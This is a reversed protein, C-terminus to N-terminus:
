KWTNRARWYLRQFVTARSLKQFIRKSNVADTLARHSNETSMGLFELIDQQGFKELGCPALHEYALMKIDFYNSRHMPRYNKIHKRFAADLFSIDFKPNSGVIVKGYIYDYILEAVDKMFPADSWGSANYGNIERAKKSMSKPREPKIKSHLMLENRGIFLPNDRIVAIEVIEHETPDLGTTETDLFVFEKTM